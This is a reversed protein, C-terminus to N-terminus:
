PELAAEITERTEPVLWFLLALAMVYDAWWWHFLLNLGVGILAAGAMFACTLTEVIDARLAASDLTRNVQRKRLALLPMAVIAVAAILLGGVSGEPKVRLVLGVGSLSLVYACLLVLLVASSKTVLGETREVQESDRGGAEVQLRWLLALGSLLEIVSDFGFATLLVSKALVGAGIAVAAEVTMWAVTFAEIRVGSRSAAARSIDQSADAM